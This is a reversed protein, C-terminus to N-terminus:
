ADTQIGAAYYGKLSSGVGDLTVYKANTMLQTGFWEVQDGADWAEGSNLSNLQPFSVNDGRINYGSQNELMIYNTSSLYQGSCCKLAMQVGSSPQFSVNGTSTTGTWITVDGTAM